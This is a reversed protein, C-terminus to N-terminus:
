QVYKEASRTIGYCSIFGSGDGNLNGNEGAVFHPNNLPQIQILFNKNAYSIHGLLIKINSTTITTDVSLSVGPFQSIKIYYNIHYHTAYNCDWSVTFENNYSITDTSFSINSVTDPVILEGSISGLSTKIELYNVNNQVEKIFHKFSVLGLYESYNYEIDQYISDAFRLYEPSVIQQAIIKVSIQFKLNDFETYGGGHPDLIGSVYEGKVFVLPNNQSDSINDICSIM